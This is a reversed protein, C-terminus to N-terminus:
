YVEVLSCLTVDWFVTIKLTVAMFVEYRVISDEVSAMDRGKLNGVLIKPRERERKDGWNANCTRVVEVHRVLWEHFLSQIYNVCQKSGVHKLVGPTGDDLFEKTSM